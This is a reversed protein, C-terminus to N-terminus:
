SKIADGEKEAPKEAKHEGTAGILFFVCLFFVPMFLTVTGTRLTRRVDTQFFILAQLPFSILQFDM